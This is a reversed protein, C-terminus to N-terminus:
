LKRSRLAPLYYTFIGGTIVLVVVVHLAFRATLNGQLFDSLVGVLFGLAIAAAIALAIATLWRQVASAPRDPDRLSLKTLWIFIPLAVIVSALSDAIETRLGFQVFQVSGGPFAHNILVFLVRGLGISWIALTIFIVLYLLAELPRGGAHATRQPVPRGVRQAYAERMATQVTKEPWGDAVLLHRLGEDDAGCQWAAAIFDKLPDAPETDM